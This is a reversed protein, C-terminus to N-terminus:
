AQIDCKILVNRREVVITQVDDTRSKYVNSGLEGIKNRQKFFLAITCTSVCSWESLRTIASRGGSRVVNLTLRHFLPM